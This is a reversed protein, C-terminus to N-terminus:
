NESKKDRESKPIYLSRFYENIFLVNDKREPPLSYHLYELPTEYLAKVNTEIEKKILWATAEGKKSFFRYLQFSDLDQLDLSIAYNLVVAARKVGDPGVFYNKHFKYPETDHEWRGLKAVREYERRADAELDYHISEPFAFQLIYRLDFYKTTSYEYNIRCYTLDLKLAKILKQNMYMLAQEPTWGLLKEVAYRWIIGTVKEPDGANKSFSVDFNKKKGMLVDEYEFLILTKSYM